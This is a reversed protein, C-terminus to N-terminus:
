NTTTGNNVDKTRANGAAMGINSCTSLLKSDHRSSSAALFDKFLRAVIHCSISHQKHICKLGLWAITCTKFVTQSCAPRLLSIMQRPHSTTRSRTFRFNQRLLVNYLRSQITVCTSLWDRQTGFKLLLWARTYLRIKWPRRDLIVSISNPSIHFL